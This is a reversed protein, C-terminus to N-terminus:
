DLRGFRAAPRDVFVPIAPEMETASGRDAYVEMLVIVEPDDILANVTEPAGDRMTQALEALRKSDATDAKSKQARAAAGELLLAGEITETNLERIGAEFKKHWEHRWTAWTDQWAELTYEHMANKLLRCSGIWRDNEVFRMPTEQWTKAGRVRWKLAAAMIDHGDKLMDATVVLEDGVVRKLPLKGGNVTPSVNEIVVTPLRSVNM